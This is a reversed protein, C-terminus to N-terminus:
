TEKLTDVKSGLTVFFENLGPGDIFHLNRIGRCASTIYDQANGRFEGDTIVYFGDLRYTRGDVEIEKGFAIALQGIIEKIKQTPKGRCTINGTKIQVGSARLKGFADLKLIVLDLGFEVLGHKDIVREEPKRNAELAEKIRTRLRNENSNRNTNKNKRDM